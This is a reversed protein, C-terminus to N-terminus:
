KLDMSYVRLYKDPRPEWEINKKVGYLQQQYHLPIQAVDEIAIKVAKQMIDRRKEKDLTKAAKEVLTDIKENSYNGLNFRGYKETPTHLLDELTGSGDGNSNSWGLMYFNTNRSLVKDYFSSKPQVKLKVNIGVKALQIAVAQAIQGDNVYRNNSADFTISFGNPYGAEKLLKRAKQPDYEVREIDSNYGFVMEPYFQGAAYAHGNMVQKIIAKENIAHYVAKRVKKKAFPGKQTNMGLFILRLSPRTLAEVGEAEKVKDVDQVPLDIVVDAQGSLLSAVRTAANTIPKLVVKEIDAKEQWYNEYAKLVMKNDKVWKELKYPGTGNEHTALYQDSHNKVYDSDFIFISKLKKALIPYPYKTKIAVTYKDRVKITDVEALTSKYQSKPHTLARNMSFKVDEATFKNGNHFKVGKRLHFVWTLKDENEWSKALCPQVNMETDLITLAEYMNFNVSNTPTENYMIPDLTMAESSTAITVTEAQGAGVFVFMLVLVFFPVVLSFLKNNNM